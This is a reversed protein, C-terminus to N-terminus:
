IADFKVCPVIQRASISVTCSVTYYNTTNANALYFKFTEVNNNKRNKKDRFNIQFIHEGVLSLIYFTSETIM